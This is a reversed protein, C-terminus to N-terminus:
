GVRQLIPGLRKFIRIFEPKNTGLYVIASPFPASHIANSFRVRGSVACILYKYLPRFWQTDIRGPVLAIAEDIEGLEYKLVLAETWRPIEKGYPPNMYVRGHWNQALGDDDKTYLTNAPVSPDDKSNSCPDTDIEGGFLELTLEIIHLPTYWEPSESSGMVGMVHENKRTSLEAKAQAATKTGSAIDAALGVVTKKTGHAKGGLIATKAEPGVAQAIEDVARAYQADRKVTPASVGSQAAIREATPRFPDNQDKEIYQNRTGQVVKEREYWKGRLYSAQQPTLNRRGLQNKVIWLLAADRDPLDVAEIGFDLGHKQAIAYRNHGDLILGNWIVLTDRIGHKLINQELQELADPPLPPMLAKFEADQKIDTRM